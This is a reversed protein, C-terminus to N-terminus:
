WNTPSTRTSAGCAWSSAAPWIASWGWTSTGRGNGSATPRQPVHRRLYAGPSGCGPGASPLFTEAGPAIMEQAGALRFRLGPVPTVTVAARPSFLGGDIYDYRSYRGGYELSLRPSVAWRDFAGVSAAVRTEPALSLALPNVGDYRQRGYAAEIGFDHASGAEALYAGSAFM